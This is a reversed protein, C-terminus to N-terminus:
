LKKLMDIVAELEDPRVKDPFIEKEVCDAFDTYHRKDPYPEMREPRIDCLAILEVNERADWAPIHAGGIGGVGVLGVKLM